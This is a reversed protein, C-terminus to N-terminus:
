EDDSDDDGALAKLASEAAAFVEQRKHTNREEQIVENIADVDQAALARIIKTNQEAFTPRPEGPANGMEWFDINFRPHNRVFEIIQPNDTEYRHRAFEIARGPHSRIVQGRHNREVDGPEIVIRLDTFRSIFTAKDTQTKVATTM